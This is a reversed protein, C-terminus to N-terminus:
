NFGKLSLRLFNWVSFKSKYINYHFITFYLIAFIAWAWGFMRRFVKIRAIILEERYDTGSSEEPHVVIAKDVHEITLWQRLCDSLFINEEWVPYSSWLWFNEDFFLQKKRISERRFTVWCSWVSLVSLFNHKWKKLKYHAIGNENQAQFIILDANAKSYASKIKEEFGEIFSLDDDCIYCIDWTAHKLAMNRNKSLWVGRMSYYNVNKWLVGEEAQIRDDTIQHSIIVEDVASLQPL